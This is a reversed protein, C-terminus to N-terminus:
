VHESLRRYQRILSNATYLQGQTNSLRQWLVDIQKKLEGVTANHGEVLAVLDTTTNGDPMVVEVGARTEDIQWHDAIYQEAKYDAVAEDRIKTLSSALAAIADHETKTLSTLHLDM